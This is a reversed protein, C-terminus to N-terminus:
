DYRKVRDILTMTENLKKKLERNEALVEKMEVKLEDVCKMDAIQKKAAIFEKKLAVFDKALKIVVGIATGIAILSPLWAIVLEYVAQATM